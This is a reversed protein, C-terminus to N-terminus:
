GVGDNDVDIELIEGIRLGLLEGYVRNMMGFPINHMQVWMSEKLFTVQNPTFSADYEMICFMNQDFSWPRGDQVKQLNLTQVFDILFLNHRVKKFVVKGSLKWVELM